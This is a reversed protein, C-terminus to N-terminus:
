ETVMPRNGDGGVVNQRVWETLSERSFRFRRGEKLRPLKGDKAWRRVTWVSVGLLEAAEPLEVLM